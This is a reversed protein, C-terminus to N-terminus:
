IHISPIAEICDAEVKLDAIDDARTVGQNVIILPKGLEKARKCFRFGSYVMLSSGLALVADSNDIADYCQQVRQKPVSGGFFVVDPMLVGSCYRCCPIEMRSYDVDGLEVDGDPRISRHIVELKALIQPNMQHLEEQIVSRQFYEGCGLCVVRDLRGHLEVLAQSGARRHLCDVNQTVLLGVRGKHEWNALAAHIANPEATGVFKWGLLSRYWYRQRVLHQQMFDHHQIPTNVQWQGQKDRYAPIGSATSCGAGTLIFLKRHRDILEQLQPYAKLDVLVGLSLRLKSTPLKNVHVSFSWCM